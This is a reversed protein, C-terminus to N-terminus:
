GWLWEDTLQSLRVFTTLFKLGIGISTTFARKREGDSVDHHPPQLEATGSKPSPFARNQTERGTSLFGYENTVVNIRLRLSFYAM